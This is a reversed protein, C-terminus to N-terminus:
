ARRIRSQVERLFAEFAEPDTRCVDLGPRGDKRPFHAFQRKPFSRVAMISSAGAVAWFAPPVWRSWSGPLQRAALLALGAAVSGVLVSKRFWRNRVSFRRAQPSLDALRLVTQFSRGLTWRAEIEIRDGFLEFRRRVQPLREMYVISSPTPSPM